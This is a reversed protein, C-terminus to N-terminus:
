SSRDIIRRLVEGARQPRYDLDGRRVTVVVRSTRDSVRNIEVIVGVDEQVGRIEGETATVNRRETLSIGMEQFAAETAQVVTAVPAAVESSANRETYAIAAAAGVAAGAALACGALLALLPLALAHRGIRIFGHM